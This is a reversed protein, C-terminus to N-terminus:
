QYYTCREFWCFSWCRRDHSTTCRFPFTPLISHFISSFPSHPNIVVQKNKHGAKLIFSTCFPQFPEFLPVIDITIAMVLLFYQYSHCKFAFFTLYNSIPLFFMGNFYPPVTIVANVVPHGLYAEADQKLRTLIM